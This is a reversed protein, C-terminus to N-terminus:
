SVAESPTTPALAPFALTASVYRTEWFLLGLHTFLIAFALVPLDIWSADRVLFVVLTVLGMRLAFGGFAVAMIANFSKRAAWTLGLAAFVLNFGVVAVALATSAAGAGGRVLAGIGIVVPVAPLGRRVMDFALIREVEPVDQSPRQARDVATSMTSVGDQSRLAKGRDGDGRLLGQGDEV